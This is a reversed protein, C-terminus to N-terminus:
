FFCKLIAALLVLLASILSLIPGLHQEWFPKKPPVIKSLVDNLEKKDKVVFHLSGSVSVDDNPDLDSLDKDNTDALNDTREKLSPLKFKCLLLTLARKFMKKM